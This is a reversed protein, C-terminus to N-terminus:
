HCQILSLLSSQHLSSVLSCPIFTANNLTSFAMTLIRDEKRLVIHIMLPYILMPPIHDSIYKSMNSQLPSYTLPFNLSQQSILRYPTSFEIVVLIAPFTTSANCMCFFLCDSFYKHFIIPLVQHHNLHPLHLIVGHGLHSSLEKSTFDVTGNM